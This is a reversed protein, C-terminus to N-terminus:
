GNSASLFEARAARRLMRGRVYYEILAIAILAAIAGFAITRFLDRLWNGPHHSIAQGLIDLGLPNLVVLGGIITTVWPWRSLDDEGRIRLWRRRVLGWQVLVAILAPVVLEIAIFTNEIGVTFPNTSRDAIMQVAVPLALPSLALLALVVAVWHFVLPRKATLNAVLFALLCVFTFVPLTMLVLILEDNAGFYDALQLAALLAVFLSLLFTGIFALVASM